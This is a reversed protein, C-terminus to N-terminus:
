LHREIEAGFDRSYETKDGRNDCVTKHKKMHELCLRMGCDRNGCMKIETMATTRQCAECRM